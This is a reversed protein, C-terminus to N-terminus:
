VAIVQTMVWTANNYTIGSNTGSQNNQDHGTIQGNSVYLYKSAMNSFDPNGLRVVIGTSNYSAVHTKPVFYYTHNYNRVTSSTYPQFHLVIGTPCTSINYKLTAEHSSTM